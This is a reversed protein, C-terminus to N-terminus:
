LDYRTRAIHGEFTEKSVHVQISHADQVVGIYHAAQVAAHLLQQHATQLQQETISYLVTARTTSQVKKAFIYKKYLLATSHSQALQVYINITAKSVACCYLVQITARTKVYLLVTSYWYHVPSACM